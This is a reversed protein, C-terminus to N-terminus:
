HRLFCHWLKKDGAEKATESDQWAKIVREKLDLSLWKRNEQELKVIETLDITALSQMDGGGKMDTLKIQSNKEDSFFHTEKYNPLTIEPHSNLWKHLTTTGSKQMGVVFFSPKKNKKMM